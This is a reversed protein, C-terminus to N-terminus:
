RTEPRNRGFSRFNIDTWFRLLWQPEVLGAKRDAADSQAEFGLGSAGQPQKSVRGSAGM